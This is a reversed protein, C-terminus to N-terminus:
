FIKRTLIRFVTSNEPLINNRRIPFKQATHRFFRAIHMQRHGLAHEHTEANQKRRKEFRFLFFKKRADYKFVKRVFRNEVHVFPKFFDERPAHINRHRVFGGRRAPDTFIGIFSLHLFLCPEHLQLRFIGTFQLARFAHKRHFLVLAFHKFDFQLAEDVSYTFVLGTEPELRMESRVGVRLLVIKGLYAVFQSVERPVIFFKCFIQALKFFRLADEVAYLFLEGRPGLDDFHIRAVQFGFEIRHTLHRLHRDAPLSILKGNKRALKKVAGFLPRTRTFVHEFNHAPDFRDIRARKAANVFAHRVSDNRIRQEHRRVAVATKAPLGEVTVIEYRAAPADDNRHIRAIQQDGHQGGDRVEAPLDCFFFRRIIPHFFPKGTM